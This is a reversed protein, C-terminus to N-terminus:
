HPDFDGHAGASFSDRCCKIEFDVVLRFALHAL